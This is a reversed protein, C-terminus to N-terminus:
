DAVNNLTNHLNASKSKDAIINSKGDAFTSLHRKTLEKEIQDLEHFRIESAKSIAKSPHEDHYIKEDNEANVIAILRRREKIIDEFQATLEERIKEEALQYCRLVSLNDLTIEIIDAEQYPNM